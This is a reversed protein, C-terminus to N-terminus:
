AWLGAGPGAWQRNVGDAWMETRWGGGTLGEYHLDFVNRVWPRQM